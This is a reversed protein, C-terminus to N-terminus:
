VDRSEGSEAIVPNFHIDHPDIEVLREISQLEMEILNSHSDGSKGLAVVAAWIRVREASLFPRLLDGDQITM